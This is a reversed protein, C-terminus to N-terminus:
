AAVAREYLRVRAAETVAVMARIEGGMADFFVSSTLVALGRRAEILDVGDYSGVGPVFGRVYRCEVDYEEGERDLVSVFLIM